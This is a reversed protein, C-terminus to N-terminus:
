CVRYFMNWNIDQTLDNWEMHDGIKIAHNEWYEEIPTMFTKNKDNITAMLDADLRVSSVTKCYESNWTNNCSNWMVHLADASQFSQIFYYLAWALVVIYYTNIVCTLVISGFGIGTTIPALIQWATIGGESTYQGVVVEAFFM